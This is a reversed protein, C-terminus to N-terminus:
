FFGPHDILYLAVGDASEARLIRFPESVTGMAIALGEAVVTTSLKELLARYGPVIVSTTAGRRALALPLAGIVDALGGAKAYPGIEAAVVAVNMYTWGTGASIRANAGNRSDNTKEAVRM